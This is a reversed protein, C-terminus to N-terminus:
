IGKQGKSVKECGVNVKREAIDSINAEWKKRPRGRPRSGEVGMETIIRSLKGEDM